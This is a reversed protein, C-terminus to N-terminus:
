VELSIAPYAQKYDKAMQFLKDFIVYLGDCWCSAAEFLPPCNSKAYQM